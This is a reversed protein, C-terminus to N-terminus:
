HIAKGVGSSLGQSIMVVPKNTNALKGQAGKSGHSMGDSSHFFLAMQCRGKRPIQHLAIEGCNNTEIYKDNNKTVPIM